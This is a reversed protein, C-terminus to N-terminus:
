WNLDDCISQTFVHDINVKIRGDPLFSSTISRSENPHTYEGKANFETWITTYEYQNKWILRYDYQTNPLALLNAVGGAMNVGQWPDSSGTIKFEANYTPAVAITPTNSCYGVLVIQYENYNPEAEVTVTASGECFNDINLNPIPKFSPNNDRFVLTVPIAPTNEVTITEEPFNGSFKISSILQPPVQRDYVDATISFSSIVSSKFTLNTGTTCLTQGSAEALKYTEGLATFVKVTDIFTDSSDSLEIFGFYDPAPPNPHAIMKVTGGNLGKVLTGAVEITALNGNELLQFIVNKSIGNDKILEIWPQYNSVSQTSINIFNLTDSYYAAMVEKSSHFMLSDSQDTFKLLSSLTIEYNITYPGPDASLSKTGGSSVGFIFTTDGDETSITGGYIDEEQDSIKSLQIEVTKIGKEMFQVGKSMPLYDEAVVNVTFEFPDSESYDINPDVTLELQGISTSYNGEKLGGFTVIDNANKGSFSIGADTTILSGDAADILNYTVRTTFFNLDVILVNIDEGTEKDTLPDDFLDRCSSAILLTTVLLILQFLRYKINNRM